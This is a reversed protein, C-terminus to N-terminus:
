PGTRWPNWGPVLEDLRHRRADSLRGQGAAQRQKHLWTGLRREEDGAPNKWSPWRGRGARFRCLANLRDQWRREDREQRFSRRWPGAQDLHRIKAEWLRGQRDLTRQAALWRALTLEAPSSGATIGPPRGMRALFERYQDVRATWDRTPADVVIPPANHLHEQRLGPDDSVRRGITWNVRAVPVNCTRAIVAPSLGRRYMLEWEDRSTFSREGAAEDGM